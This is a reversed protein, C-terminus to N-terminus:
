EALAEDYAKLLAEGLQRDILLQGRLTILNLRFRELDQTSAQTPDDDAISLSLSSVTQDMVRRQEGDYLGQINYLKAYKQVDAYDMHALAGTREAGQWAASSLSSLHFGLSLKHISTKKTSLLDKAFQYSIDVDKEREDADALHRQIASKNDAIERAITEHAEKVLLRHHNWELLGEISLAILVGATITLLQILFEKVSHPAAHPPHVEVPAGQAATQAAPPVATEEVPPVVQSAAEAAIPAATEDVPEVPGEPREDM